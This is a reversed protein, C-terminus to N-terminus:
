KGKRSPCLRGIFHAPFRGKPLNRGASEFDLRFGVNNNVNKRDTDLNLAAVGANANNNWSGFRIPIHQCITM